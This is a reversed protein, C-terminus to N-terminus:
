FYFKEHLRHKFLIIYIYTLNLAHTDIAIGSLLKPNEVEKRHDMFAYKVVKSLKPLLAIMSFAM